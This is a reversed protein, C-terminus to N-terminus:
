RKALLELAYAASKDKPNMQVERELLAKAEQVKGQKALLLGLNGNAGPQTPMIELSRLYAVIAEKDKGATHYTLGLGFWLTPSNPEWALATLWSQTSYSFLKRDLFYGARFQHIQSFAARTLRHPNSGKAPGEFLDPYAMRWRTEAAIVESDSVPTDSMLWVWGSPLLYKASGPAQPFHQVVLPREMDEESLNPLDLPQYKWNHMGKMIWDRRHSKSWTFFGGKVGQDQPYGYGFFVDPRRKQAWQAYALTHSGNDSAIFLLSDDPTSKLTNEIYADTDSYGALTQEMWSGAALSALVSLVAGILLGHAKTQFWEGVQALGFAAGTALLVYIPLHWDMVGYFLIYNNDMGKQKMHGILLLAAYPIAALTLWVLPRLSKRAMVALGVLALALAIWGVQGILDYSRVWEEAFGAPAESFPRSPWQKRQIGWMFREWTDPQGWNMIPSTSARLPNYLFVCLGALTGVLGLGLAKLREWGSAFGLAFSIMLPALVVQSPHNGVAAGYLLGLQVWNWPSASGREWAKTAVGMILLNLAVLLTYQETVFSQELWAASGLLTLPAALASWSASSQPLARKIWIQLLWTLLGLSVAGYFACLLNTVRVADVSSFLSTAGWALLTWTPAGPPHPVGGVKAALAFEGSDHFTVGPAAGAMLIICSLAFVAWSLWREWLEWGAALTLQPERGEGLGNATAPAPNAPKTQPLAVPLNEPRTSLEEV